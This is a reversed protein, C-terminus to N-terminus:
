RFTHSQLARFDLKKDKETQHYDHRGKECPTNRTRDSDTKRASTDEIDDGVFHLVIVIESPLHNNGKWM